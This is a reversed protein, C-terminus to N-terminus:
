SDQLTALREDAQDKIDNIIEDFKPRTNLPRYDQVQILNQYYTQYHEEFNGMVFLGPEEEVYDYDLIREFATDVIDPDGEWKVRGITTAWPIGTEPQESEDIFAIEILAQCLVTAYDDAPSKSAVICIDKWSDKFNGETIPYRGEDILFRMYASTSDFLARRWRHVAEVNDRTPADDPVHEYQWDMDVDAVEEGYQELLAKQATEMHNYLRMMTHEHWRIDSVRWLQRGVNRSISSSVAWVIDPNPHDAADVLLEGLHNWASNSAILSGTDVPADRIVESLGSQAQRSVKDVPLGLGANGIEYQWETANGVMQNEDHDEAQLTIDHLHEKLVPGFLQDIVQPNEESFVEQRKFDHLTEEVLEGYEQLSREATVREGRSLANMTLTYLPRMPHAYESNDEVSNRVQDLYRGTTMWDVFTDIAGDPTSQKIANRVFVFLAYAAVFGLGAAAFVGATHLQSFSPPVLYLLWLDLAISVVFLTFTYIFIPQDTFLGVMRPSYRTGILQIGLVTVSFVIALVGAQAGALASLFVRTNEPNPSQSVFGLVLGLAPFLITALGLSAPLGGVFRKLSVMM